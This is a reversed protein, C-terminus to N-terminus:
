ESTTPKCTSCLKHLKSYAKNLLENENMEEDPLVTINLYSDM